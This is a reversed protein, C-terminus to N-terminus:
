LVLPVAPIELMQINVQPVLLVTKAVQRVIIAALVLMVVAQLAITHPPVRLVLSVLLLGQSPISASRVAPVRVRHLAVRAPM